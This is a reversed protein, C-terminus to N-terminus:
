DLDVIHLFNPWVELYYKTYFENFLFLFEMKKTIATGFFQVSGM